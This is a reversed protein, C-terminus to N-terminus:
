SLQAVRGEAQDESIQGVELLTKRLKLLDESNYLNRQIWVKLVKLIDLKIQLYESKSLMEFLKVFANYVVLEFVKPFSNETLPQKTQQSTM